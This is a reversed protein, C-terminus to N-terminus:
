SHPIEARKSKTVEITNRAMPKSKHLDLRFLGHRHHGVQEVKNQSDHTARPHRDGEKRVPYLSNAFKHGAVMNILQHGGIGLLLKRQFDKSITRPYAM